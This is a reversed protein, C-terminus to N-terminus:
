KIYIKVSIPDRSILDIKEILLKFLNYLDERDSDEMNALVNQLAKLNDEKKGTIKQNELIKQLNKEEKKFYKIRANLDSMFNELEKETIIGKGYLAIYKKREINFTKLQKETHKLDDQYKELVITNNNLDKLEKLNLMNEIIAKELKKESISKKCKECFYTYYKERKHSYLKGNCECYVLGTFLLRYKPIANKRNNKIYQQVTDFTDEDILAPHEGDFIQFDKKTIQKGTHIDKEKMGYILKGIYFPNILIWRMSEPTRNFIKGTKKISLTNLYTKFMNKVEDALEDDIIITKGDEAKKYGIPLVGGQWRGVKARAWKGSKVRSAIQKREYDGLMAQINFFLEGTPTTTDLDPQSVSVFKTKHLHLKRVFKIMTLTVRSIRSTEYVVLVDYAGSEIEENLELFGARNDKGGSEVDQLVKGIEYGKFGCYDKCKIIQFKLNEHEEQMTTSVRAYIIAKM